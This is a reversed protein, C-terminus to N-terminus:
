VARAAAPNEIRPLRLYFTTGQGPSSEVTLEGGAGQTFEQSEYVGIGMGANGKTTIFPRFLRERIFIEDM